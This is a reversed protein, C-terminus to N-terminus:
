IPPQLNKPPKSISAVYPLETDFWNASMQYFDQSEELEGNAFAYETVWMTMNEYADHVQGIHSALGEFNGYWHVPIFDPNCGGNCAEFWQELWIFGDPSGTVGPAGLSINYEEKLPEIERIWLEAATEAPICSGGYVQAGCGDPENFGLVYNIDRGDEVLQSVTNYFLMDDGDEPQGWMMPVFEMQSDDFKTTPSAQYNYYWTLDTDIWIQDDDLHGASSPVYVLGRKGSSSSDQANTPLTSLLTAALLTLSTSSLM